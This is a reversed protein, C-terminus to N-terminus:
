RQTGNQGALGGVLGGSDRCKAVISLCILSIPISPGSFAPQVSVGRQGEGESILGMMREVTILSQRLPFLRSLM